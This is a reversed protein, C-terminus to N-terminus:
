IRGGLVLSLLLVLGLGAIVLLFAMVLLPALQARAGLGPSEEPEVDAEDYYPLSQPPPAPTAAPVVPPAQVPPRRVVIPMEVVEVPAKTDDPPETVDEAPDKERRTVVILENDEEELAVEESADSGAPDMGVSRQYERLNLTERLNYGADDKVRHATEAAAGRGDKRVVLMIQTDGTRAENNMPQLHEVEDSDDDDDESTSRIHERLKHADALVSVSTVENSHEATETPEELRRFLAPFARDDEEDAKAGLESIRVAETNEGRDWDTEIEPALTRALALPDGEERASEGSLAWLLDDVRGSWPGTQRKLRELISKARLFSGTAQFRVALSLLEEPSGTREIERANPDPQLPAEESQRWLDQYRENNALSEPARGLLKRARVPWGRGIFMEAALLIAEADEPDRSLIENLRVWARDMLCLDVLARAQLLCAARSAEGTRSWREVLRILGRRDSRAALAACVRDLYAAIAGSTTNEAAHTTDNM